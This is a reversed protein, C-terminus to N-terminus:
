LSAIPGSDCKITISSIAANPNLKKLDAYTPWEFKEKDLPQGDGKWLCKKKLIWKEAKIPREM